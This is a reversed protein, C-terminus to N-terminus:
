QEGGDSVTMPLDMQRTDRQMAVARGAERGIFIFTSVGKASALKVKVNMTATAVDRDDTPKLDVSLTVNRIQKPATNADLINELAKQLGDNFLEMAAGRGLTKIDVYEDAM